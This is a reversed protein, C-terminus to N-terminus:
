LAVQSVLHHVREDKAEEALQTRDGGDGGNAADM